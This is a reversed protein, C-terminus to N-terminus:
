KYSRRSSRSPASGRRNDRLPLARPPEPMLRQMATLTELPISINANQGTGGRTRTWIFYGILLLLLGSTGFGTWAAQHWEIETGAINMSYNDRKENAKNLQDLLEEFEDGMSPPPVEHHYQLLNFDLKPSIDFTSVNIATHTLHDSTKFSYNMPVAFSFPPCRIVESTIRGDANDLLTINNGWRQVIVHPYIIMSESKLKDTSNLPIQKWSQISADRFKPERHTEVYNQTLMYVGKVCDNVENRVVYPAGQYVWKVAGEALNTYHPLTHVRYIKMNKTKFRGTLDIRLSGAEPSWIKDVSSDRASFHDLFHNTQLVQALAVMDPQKQQMSYLLRDLLMKKEMIKSGMYNAVTALTAYEKVEVELNLVRQSLLKISGAVAKQALSDIDIRRNLEDVQAMLIRQREQINHQANGLFKEKISQYVNSIFIGALLQLQRKM